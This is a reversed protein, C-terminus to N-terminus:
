WRRRESRTDYVSRGGIYVREVRSRPDCPDGTIVVIDADKGQELSGVRDAIGATVAPIITVGRVAAMSANDMGYRVGMAAQLPLAQQLMVPADTNFGIRSHGRQQFGWATGHVQGDTDFRPPRPWMVARPGLIAAVGVDEAREATLYSDFSGHDIYVDLGFDIRLMQITMYVLQYYQTHTSVQTRKAYLERFIDLQIDREPQPGEGQEFAAWRAGYTLGRRLISRLTYNMLLRGMGYGWRTPNDGQAIKLSGPDRVLAEEFTDVGTKMLIGQGGMNTGSGPIFLITTVGAAVATKLLSNHPVVATSVRLGPNAQFVMDNIDGRTGGVHSHLDILGPVLWAEGVDEVAYGPPIALESEPGIGEILGDRILLVPHDIFQRGDLEATLAKGAILALGSGGPAGPAQAGAAGALSAAAGIAAALRVTHLFRTM